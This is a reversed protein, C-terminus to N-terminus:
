ATTDYIKNENYEGYENTNSSYYKKYDYIKEISLNVIHKSYYSNEIVEDMSAQKFFVHNDIAQYCSHALYYRVLYRFRGSNIQKLKFRTFANVLNPLEGKKGYKFTLNRLEDEVYLMKKTIKM